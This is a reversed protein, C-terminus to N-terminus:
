TCLNKHPKEYDFVVYVWERRLDLHPDFWRLNMHVPIYVDVGVIIRTYTSACRLNTYMQVNELYVEWCTHRDIFKVNGQQVDQM